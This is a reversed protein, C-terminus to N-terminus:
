ETARESLAKSLELALFPNRLLMTRLVGGPHHLVRLQEGEVAADQARHQEPGREQGELEALREGLARRFSHSPRISRRTRSARGSSASAMTAMRLGIMSAPTWEAKSVGKVASASRCYMWCNGVRARNWTATRRGWPSVTPKWLM